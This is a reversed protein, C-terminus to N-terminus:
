RSMVIRDGLQNVQLHLVEQVVDAFGQVDNTRFTGYIKLKAADANAVVLQRANYRNFEAIADGLAVHRFVLRGLRWSAADTLVQPSAKFVHMTSGTAVAVDGGKLEVSASTNKESAGFTVRCELMSVKRSDQDIRVLFRTGLDTIRHGHAIVAFPRDAGHRIEFYAEGSDLVAEHREDAVRLVSNTNLAIRSGDSLTVIKRGGVATAYTTYSPAFIYSIGTAVVALAVAAITVRSRMSAFFRRSKYATGEKEPARLAVMRGTKNWAHKARWYAVRHAAAEQLWIDLRAQQEESWDTAVEHEMIWESARMQVDRARTEAARSDNM